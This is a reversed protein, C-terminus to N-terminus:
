SGMAGGVKSSFGSLGRINDRCDTAFRALQNGLTAACKLDSHKVTISLDAIAMESKKISRALESGGVASDVVKEFTSEINMLVPFDPTGAYTVNSYYSSTGGPPVPLPTGFFVFRVVLYAILLVGVQVIMSRHARVCSDFEEVLLASLKPKTASTASAGADSGASDQATTLLPRM